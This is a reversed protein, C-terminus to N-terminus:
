TCFVTSKFQNIPQLGCQVNRLALCSDRKKGSCYVIVSKLTRNGVDSISGEHEDGDFDIASVQKRLTGRCKVTWAQTVALGRADRVRRRPAARLSSTLGRIWEAGIGCAVENSSGKTSNQLASHIPLIRNMLSGMWKHSHIAGRMDRKSEVLPKLYIVLVRTAGM